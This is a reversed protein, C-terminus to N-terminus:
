VLLAPMSVKRLKGPAKAAVTVRGAVSCCGLRLLWHRLTAQGRGRVLRHVKPACQWPADLGLAEFTLTNM